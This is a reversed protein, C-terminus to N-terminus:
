ANQVGGRAWLKPNWLRFRRTYGFKVDRCCEQYTKYMNPPDPDRWADPEDNYDTAAYVKVPGNPTDKYVEVDRCCHKNILMVTWGEYSFQKEVEDAPPEENTIFQELAAFTDKARM